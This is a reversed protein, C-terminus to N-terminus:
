FEGELTGLYDNDIVVNQNTFTKLKYIKKPTTKIKKQTSKQNKNTKKKTMGCLPSITAILLLALFLSQRHLLNKKM